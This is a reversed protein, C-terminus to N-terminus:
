KVEMLTYHRPYIHLNTIFYHSTGIEKGLDKAVKEQLKSFTYQDNCFGYVLDISRAFITMCVFNNKIYFNLVMNCPTDSPYRDLEDLHYHVMVARRSDIEKLEKILRKYQDNYKWFWGYNSNVENTGPVKCMEWIKAKKAIETADRDGKLYWKWEYEAYDINFKRERTTIIREEPCLIQFSTNFIAKTTAYEDGDRIIMKYLEEFAKTPNKFIRM